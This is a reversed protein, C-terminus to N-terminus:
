KFLKSMQTLFERKEKPIVYVDHYASYSDDDSSETQTTEVKWFAYKEHNDLYEEVFNDFAWHDHKWDGQTIEFTLKFCEMVLADSNIFDVSISESRAAKEIDIGLNDWEKNWEENLAEDLPLEKYKLKRVGSKEYKAIRKEPNGIVPTNLYKEAEEYTPKECLRVWKDLTPHYYEAAYIIKPNAAESIDSGKDIESNYYGDPNDELWESAFGEDYKNDSNEFFMDVLESDGYIFEDSNQIALCAYEGSSINISDLYDFCDSKSTSVDIVDEDNNNSAVVDLAYLAADTDSSFDIEDVEVGEGAFKVDRDEKTPIGNYFYFTYKM